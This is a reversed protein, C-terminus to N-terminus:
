KLNITKVFVLEPEEGHNFAEDFNLVEMINMPYQWGGFTGSDADRARDEAAEVTDHFDYKNIEDLDEVTSYYCGYTNWSLFVNKYMPGDDTQIIYTKGPRKLKM